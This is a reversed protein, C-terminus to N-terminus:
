CWCTKYSWSLYWDKLFWPLYNEWICIQTNYIYIDLTKLDWGLKLWKTSWKHIQPYSWWYHDVHQLLEVQLQEHYGLDSCDWIHTLEKKKKKKSIKSIKLILSQKSMKM